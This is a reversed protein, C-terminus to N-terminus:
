NYTWIMHSTSGNALQIDLSIPTLAGVTAIRYRAQLTLILTGAANYSKSILNVIATTSTDAEIVYTYVVSGDGTTQASNTYLIETGYTGTGGVTVSTPIIPPNLFVGYNVGSHGRPVYNSDYYGTSTSAYSAPTCNSFTYTLTQTVSLAATGEFTAGATAPASTRSGSGSCYGTITFNKTSGNAILSNLASQVPFSLTSTVPGAPAGGGGGGCGSLGALLLPLAFIALLKYM